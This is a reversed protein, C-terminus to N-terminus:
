HWLQSQRRVLSYTNFKIPLPGPASQLAQVLQMGADYGIMTASIGSPPWDTVQSALGPGILEPIRGLDSYFVVGAAM